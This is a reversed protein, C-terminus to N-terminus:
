SPFWLKQGEKLPMCPIYEGPIPIFNLVEKGIAESTFYGRKTLWALTPWFREPPQTNEGEVEVEKNDICDKLVTEQLAKDQNHYSKGAAVQSRAELWRLGDRFLNQDKASSVQALTTDFFQHVGVESASPTETKPLIVDVVAKLNHAELDTFFIPKWDLVPASKCSHLFISIGGASMGAGLLLGTNKLASRRNM